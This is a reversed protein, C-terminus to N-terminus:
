MVEVDLLLLVVEPWCRKGLCVVASENSCYSDQSRVASVTVYFGEIRSGIFALILAHNGYMSVLIEGVEAACMGFVICTSEKGHFFLQATLQNL